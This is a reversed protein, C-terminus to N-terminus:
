LRELSRLPSANIDLLNGIIAFLSEAWEKAMAISPAVFNTFSVDVMTPGYCVSITREQM